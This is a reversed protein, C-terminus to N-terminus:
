AGAKSFVQNVTRVIVKVDLWLSWNEIYFNDYRARDDISTNGRLGNVQALGTLGVPVRHRYVYHPHEGSFTEVFHPREPRPGVITMEGRLINWLQPLEDLSTARLFRGLKSVRSDQAISWQTASEQENAPRMSRFKLVDFPHGGRGIRQQRFIVGPGGDLRVALAILALLPSLVLIALGSAAIDFLRKARWSPRTPVFSSLRVVPIAGIHDQLPSRRGVEFFRPVVFVQSINPTTRLTTTITSDLGRGYGLLIADVALADVIAPLHAVGGLHIWSETHAEGTAPEEDVYGVVKLGYQPHADLTEAIKRSVTGAGVILTRYEVLRRRRASRIVAYSVSRMLLHGLLGVVAVRVFADSARLGHWHNVLLASVLVAIAWYRAMAPLDDLVSMHLRARYLGRMQWAMVTLGWLMALYRWQDSAFTLYALLVVADAGGLVLGAGGPKRHLGLRHLRRTARSRLPPKEPARPRLIEPVDDAGQVGRLDIIKPGLAGGGGARGAEDDLFASIGLVPTPTLDGTLAPSLDRRSPTNMSVVVGKPSGLGGNTQDALEMHRPGRRRRRHHGSTSTRGAARTRGM